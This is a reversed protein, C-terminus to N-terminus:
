NADDPNDDDAFLSKVRRSMKSKRLNEALAIFDTRTVTDAAVTYDPFLQQLALHLVEFLRGRDLSIREKEASISKLENVARDYNEQSDELASHMTRLQTRLTELDARSAVLEQEKVELASKANNLEVQLIEKEDKHARVVEDLSQQATRYEALTNSLQRNEHQLNDLQKRFIVKLRDAEEKTLPTEEEIRQRQMETKRKHSANYAWVWRAPYPYFLIYAIATTAPGVFVHLVTVLPDTWVQDSIFGFKVWPKMDSFLTFIVKYNWLLWSVIFAGALPSSFRDKLHEGLSDLLDKM